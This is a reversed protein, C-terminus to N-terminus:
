KKPRSPAPAADSEPAALAALRAKEAALHELYEADTRVPDRYPDTTEGLATWGRAEHWTPHESDTVLRRTDGFQDTEIVVHM